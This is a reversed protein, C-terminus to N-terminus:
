MVDNVEERKAKTFELRIKELAKELKGIEVKYLETAGDDQAAKNLVKLYDAAAKDFKKEAKIIRDPSPQAIAKELDKCADELGSSMKFSGLFKKSPKKKGTATEFLRKAIMWDSAFDYPM